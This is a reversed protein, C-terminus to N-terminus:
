VSPRGDAKGDASTTRATITSATTDLATAKRSMTARTASIPGTRIVATDYTLGATAIATPASHSPSATVVQVTTPKTSTRSPEYRTFRLTDGVGSRGPASPVG